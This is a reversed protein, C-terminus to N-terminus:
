GAVGGGGWAAGRDFVAGVGEAGVEVGVEVVGAPNGFGAGGAVVPSGMTKSM